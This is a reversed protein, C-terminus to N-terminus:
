SKPFVRVGALGDFHSDQTWFTAGQQRATEYILSDARPLGNLAADLALPPAIDVVRGRLMLSLAATAVEEGAERQLKRRVEYVTLVPVVLREVAETAM